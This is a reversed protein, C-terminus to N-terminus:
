SGSRKTSGCAHLASRHERNLSLGRDKTPLLSKFDNSDCEEFHEEQSGSNNGAEDMFASCRPDLYVASVFIGSNGKEKMYLCQTKNFCTRVKRVVISCKVWTGFLRDFTLQNQQLCRTAIKVPKLIYSIKSIKVWDKAPIDLKLNSPVM